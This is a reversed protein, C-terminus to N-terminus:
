VVSNIWPARTATWVTRLWISIPPSSVYSFVCSTLCHTRCESVDIMQLLFLNYNENQNSIWCFDGTFSVTQVMVNIVVDTQWKQRFITLCTDCHFWRCLWLHVSSHVFTFTFLTVLVYWVNSLNCIDAPVKSLEKQYQPMKKLMQALEKM